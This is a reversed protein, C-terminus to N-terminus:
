QLTFFPRLTNSPTLASVCTYIWSEWSMWCLRHTLRCARSPHYNPSWSHIRATNEQLRWRVRPLYQSNCPEFHVKCDLQSSPRITSQGLHSLHDVLYRFPRRDFIKHNIHFLLSTMRCVEELATFQHHFHPPWISDFRSTTHCEGPLILPHIVSYILPDTSAVTDIFLLKILWTAKPQKM